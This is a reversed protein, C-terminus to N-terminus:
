RQPQPVATVAPPPWAARPWGAPLRDAQEMAGRDSPEVPPVATPIPANVVDVPVVQEALSKRATDCNGTVVGPRAGFMRGSTVSNTLPTGNTTISALGGPLSLPMVSAM